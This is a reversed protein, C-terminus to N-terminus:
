HGEIDTFGTCRGNVRGDWPIFRDLEADKEPDRGRREGDQQEHLAWVQCSGSHQCYLCNRTRYDYRAKATTFHGM